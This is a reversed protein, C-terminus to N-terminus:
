RSTLDKKAFMDCVPPLFSMVVIAGNLTVALFTLTLSTFHHPRVVSNVIVLALLVVFTLRAWRRFFWLGTLVILLLTLMFAHAFLSAYPHLLTLSSVRGQAGWGFFWELVMWCGRVFLLACYVLIVSM